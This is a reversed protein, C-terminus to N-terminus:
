HCAIHHRECVGSLLNWIANLSRDAAGIAAETEMETQPLTELLHREQARHVEDAEIHVAFYRLTREDEIGYHKRLGNIKTAAVEPIQSEYTYLATVGELTSGNRCLDRFTEVAALTEPQPRTNLVTERSVGLGEAFQLWLEPHNPTGAEEDMLNELLIRRAEPDETHSHVASLYTPFAAVHRYYQTAYDQLAELTLTGANWAQYFPHNLVQRTAIKAELATMLPHTSEPALTM